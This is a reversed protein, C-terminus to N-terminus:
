NNLWRLALKLCMILCLLLMYYQLKIVVHTSSNTSSISDDQSINDSSEMLSGQYRNYLRNDLGIDEKDENEEALTEDELGAKSRYPLEMESVFFVIATNLSYCRYTNYLSNTNTVFIWYM